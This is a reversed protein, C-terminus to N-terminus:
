GAACIAAFSDPQLSAGGVLVGNVDPASLLEAANEPKVSGGYLIPIADATERGTSEVLFSRIELHMESADSPSATRGTGIAWVPEYAILLRRADASSLTDLVASLQRKVVTAASGAEREDLTEGVCLVPTLGAALCAQVKRATDPDTEGFVHRRESHGVLALRAGAAAALPASIEGTFAGEPEWYVNQVGILVDRRDRTAQVATALSVAPPFILISGTDAAEAMPLFADFFRRTEDPSQHMKWNGALVPRKLARTEGSM